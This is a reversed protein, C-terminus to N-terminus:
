FQSIWDFSFSHIFRSDKNFQFSNSFKEAPLIHLLDAVQHEDLKFDSYIKNQM